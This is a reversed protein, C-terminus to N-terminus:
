RKKSKNIGLKDEIKEVREVLNLTLRMVDEKGFMEGETRFMFYYSAGFVDCARVATDYPVRREGQQIKTLNGPALGIMEAAQSYTKVPGTKTVVFEILLLFNRTVEEDMDEKKRLAKPNLFIQVLSSM